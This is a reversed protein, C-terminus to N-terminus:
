DLYWSKAVNASAIYIPALFILSPENIAASESVAALQIPLNLIGNGNAAIGFFAEMDPNHLKAMLPTVIDSYVLTKERRDINDQMNICGNNYKTISYIEIPVNLLYVILMKNAIVRRFLLANGALSIFELPSTLVEKSNLVALIDPRLRKVALSDGVLIGDTIPDKQRKIWIENTLVNHVNSPPLGDNDWEGDFFIRCDLPPTNDTEALDERNRNIVHKHKSHVLVYQEFGSLKVDKVLEHDELAVVIFHLGEGGGRYHDSIPLDFINELNGGITTGQLRLSGFSIVVDMDNGFNAQDNVVTTPVKSDLWNDASNRKGYLASLSSPQQDVSFFRRHTNPVCKLEQQSFHNDHSCTQLNWKATRFDYQFYEPCDTVLRDYEVDNLYKTEIGLTKLYLRYTFNRLLPEGKGPADDLVQAYLKVKGNEPQVVDEWPHVTGDSNEVAYYFHVQSGPYTLHSPLNLYYVMRTSFNILARQKNDHVRTTTPRDLTTTFIQNGFDFIGQVGDATYPTRKTIILKKTQEEENAILKFRTEETYGETVNYGYLSYETASEEDRAFWEFKGLEEVAGLITQELSLVKLTGKTLVKRFLYLIIGLSLAVMLLHVLVHSLVRGASLEM